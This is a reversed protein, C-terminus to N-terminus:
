STGNVDLLEQRRQKLAASARQAETAGVGTVVDELVKRTGARDAAIVLPGVLTLIAGVILTVVYKTTTLPDGFWIEPGIASATVLAGFGSVVGGPWQKLSTTLDTLLDASAFRIQESGASWSPKPVAASLSDDTDRASPQTSSRDPAAESRPHETGPQASGRSDM